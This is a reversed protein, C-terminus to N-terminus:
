RPTGDDMSTKHDLGMTAWTVCQDVISVDKLDVISVDKLHTSTTLTLQGLPLGEQLLSWLLIGTDGGCRDQSLRELLPQLLRKSQLTIQLNGQRLLMLQKSQM